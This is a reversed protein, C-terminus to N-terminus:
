HISAGNWLAVLVDRPRPANGPWWLGGHVCVAFVLLTLSIVGWSYLREGTVLPFQHIFVGFEQCRPCASESARIRYLRASCGLLASRGKDLTTVPDKVSWDDAAKGEPRVEGSRQWHTRFRGRLYDGESSDNDPTLM